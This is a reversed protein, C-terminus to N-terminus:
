VFATAAGAASPQRLHRTKVVNKTTCDLEKPDGHWPRGNSEKCAAVCGGCGVCRTSDYLLGVADPEVAVHARAAASSPLAAATAAAAVGFLARRSIKLAM